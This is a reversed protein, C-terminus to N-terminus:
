YNQTGPSYDECHKKSGRGKLSSLALTPHWGQTLYTEIYDQRRTFLDKLSHEPLVECHKSEERGESGHSNKKKM